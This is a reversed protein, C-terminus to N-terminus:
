ATTSQHNLSNQIFENIASQKIANIQSDTLEQKVEQVIGTNVSVDQLFNKIANIQMEFISSRKKLTILEPTTKHASRVRTLDAIDKEICSQIFIMRKMDKKQSTIIDSIDNSTINKDDNLLRNM